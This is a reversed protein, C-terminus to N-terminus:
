TAPMYGMDRSYQRLDMEILSRVYHTLKKLDFYIVTAWKTFVKRCEKLSKVILHYDKEFLECFGGFSKLKSLSRSCFWLRMSSSNEHDDLENCKVGNVDKSFYKSIYYSIASKSNVSKVDVSNPQSWNSAKNKAYMKAVRDFTYNEKSKYLSWYDNLSIKQYKEQYAQIYGYNAQLRNWIKLIFFYDLYTDTVIHYHVNGNRQFELRWVYNAMGTRQRLETLFTGFLENTVEKTPKLQKSALTLTVFSMKYNFIERGSYTKVYRSKSLHYLWSIKNRLTRYANESITFNHHSRTVRNAISKSKKVGNTDYSSNRFVRNYLVLKSPTLSFCPIIQFDSM